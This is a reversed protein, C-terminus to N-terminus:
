ESTPRKRRRRPSIRANGGRDPVDSPAPKAAANLNLEWAGRRKKLSAILATTSLSKRDALVAKRGADEAARVLDAQGLGLGTASVKAWDVRETDLTKLRRRIVEAVGAADPLKYLLTLDFRRVMARDILEPLNTAAIVISPGPDEDLFLLFSNLVRRAEGIDDGRGRAAALADIEDFFYIGRHTRVADFISRLKSATEGYFKSILGHLQVSFLPLKLEGALANATMTKGTGPPGAFLLKQRPAFGKAELRDRARTEIIVDKLEGLIDEGLVLENLRERPYTAALVEALDGRPAALPSVKNADPAQPRVDRGEISEAWRRLDAALRKHGKQEEAAALQIALDYFRAEDGEAHSKVLGILQQASAM